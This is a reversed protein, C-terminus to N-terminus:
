TDAKVAYKPVVHHCEAWQHWLRSLLNVVDPYQDALDELESRDTALNYLAWQGTDFKQIAKWDGMRVSCNDEHEWFMIEHPPLNGAAFGSVLSRGELPPIPVGFAETPYSADALELLTPMLDILYSPTEVQQHASILRPSHVILSTAMGGEHVYHKYLRFPANSLNAWARGYSVMLGHSLQPNCIEEVAGRGLEGGEACGGNDSLFFIVTNEYENQAKLAEVLRGINEDMREVQAAYVAMRYDMEDQQEPTLADWARVEEDRPSLRCNERTLIGKELMREYRQQRLVDWGALYRGRYQAVNEAPAQLPWHPANYALYLFFPAHDEKEKLFQIAYDTFADTSYFDSGPQVPEEQLYLGNPPQPNLYNCAGAHIGFFREFGRRTPWQDKEHLGLHWKGSMWTHYGADRLVEAMTVCNHNLFGRYGFVGRDDSQANVPTNTMHGIGTQHPHLGTILSARTPCCRASNYFQTHLQGGAALSDLNPTHIESGMCGLDSYGMDDALILVINPRHDTM